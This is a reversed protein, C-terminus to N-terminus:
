EGTVDLTGYEFDNLNEPIPAGATGPMVKFLPDFVVMASALKNLIETNGEVKATGDGIQDALSESGAMVQKLDTRNITVTLDPNEALVAFKQSGLINLTHASIYLNVPFRSNHQNRIVLSFIM